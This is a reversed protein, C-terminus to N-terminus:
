MAWEVYIYETEEGDAAGVVRDAKLWYARKVGTEKVFHGGSESDLSQMEWERQQAPTISHLYWSPGRPEGTREVLKAWAIGPPARHKGGHADWVPPLWNDPVVDGQEQRGATPTDPTSHQSM